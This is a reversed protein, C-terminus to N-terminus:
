TGPAFAFVKSGYQPHPGSTRILMLVTFSVNGGSVNKFGAPYHMEICSSLSPLCGFNEDFNNPIVYAPQQHALEFAEHVGDIADMIGKFYGYLEEISRPNSPPKLSKGAATLANVAAGGVMYVDAGQAAALTVGTVDIYSDTYNYAYPGLLAAGSLVGNIVVTQALYADLLRKAELIVVMNQIQDLYDGYIANILKGMPGLADLLGGLLFQPTAHGEGTSASLATMRPGNGAGASSAQAQVRAAMAKVVSPMDKALLDSIADAHQVVGYLSPTAQASKLTAAIAALDAQYQLLLATDATDNGSPQNLLNTIQGLKVRLLASATGYGADGAAANIGNAQLKAVSPVFGLDPAFATSAAMRNPEVGASASVIAAAAAALAAADGRRAADAALPLQRALTGQAASLTAYLGANASQTGGQLVTFVATASLSTGAVTGRLTFSGRTDAGTIVQGGSVSPLAGSTGETPAIVDFSIAPMPTIATGNADFVTALLPLATGAGVVRQAVDLTVSAPVPGATSFAWVLLGPQFALLRDQRLTITDTPTATGGADMDGVLVQGDIVTTGPGAGTLQASLRAQAATGNHVTVRFVYDFTTRGVRTESVKTLGTVAPSDVAQVALARATPNDQATAVAAGTDGGGGGCAALVAAAMGSALVARLKRGMSFLTPM